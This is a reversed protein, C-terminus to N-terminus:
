GVQDLDKSLFCMERFYLKSRMVEWKSRQGSRGKRPLEEPRIAKSASAARPRRGGCSPQTAPRLCASPVRTDEPKSPMPGPSHQSPARTRHRAENPPRLHGQTRDWTVWGASPAAAPSVILSPPRLGCRRLLLWPMQAPTPGPNLALHSEPPRVPPSLWPLLARGPVQLSASGGPCSGSGERRRGDTAGGGRRDSATAAECLSSAALPLRAARAQGKSGSSQISTGKICCWRPRLRETKGTALGAHQLLAWPGTPIWFTGSLGTPKM